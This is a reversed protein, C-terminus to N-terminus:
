EHFEDIRTAASLSRDIHGFLRVFIRFSGRNPVGVRAALISHVVVKCVVDAEEEAARCMDLRWETPRSHRTKRKWKM